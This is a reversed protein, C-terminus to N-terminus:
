CTVLLLTKNISNAISATSTVSSTKRPNKRWIHSNISSGTFNKKKTQSNRLPKRINKKVEAFGLSIDIASQISQYLSLLFLMILM